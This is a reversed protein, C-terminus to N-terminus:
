GFKIALLATLKHLSADAQYLAIFSKFSSNIRAMYFNLWILWCWSIDLSRDHLFRCIVEYQFIYYDSYYLM